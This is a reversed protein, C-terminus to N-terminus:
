NPMLPHFLLGGAVYPEVEGWIEEFTPSDKVDTWSLGHIDIFEPKFYSTPPKILWYRSEIIKFNCKVIKM